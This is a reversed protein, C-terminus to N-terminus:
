WDGGYTATNGIATASVHSFAAHNTNDTTLTTTARVAANNTQRSTAELTAPNGYGAAGVTASNAIAVSSGSNLGWGDSVTLDTRATTAANATQEINATTGAFNSGATIKNAIAIAAGGVFGDVEDTTIATTARTEAESTQTSTLDLATGRTVATFDNAFAASVADVGSGDDYTVRVNSIVKDLNIQGNLVTSTPAVWSDGAIVSTTDAKQDLSPQALAPSSLVACALTSAALLTRM